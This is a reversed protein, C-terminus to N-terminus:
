LKNEKYYKDALDFIYVNGEEFSDNMLQALKIEDDTSWNFHLEWVCDIQKMYLNEYLLFEVPTNKMLTKSGVVGHKIASWHVYYTAKDSPCRIEGEGSSEDFWAVYGLKKM